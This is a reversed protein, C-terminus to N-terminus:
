GIIASCKVLIKKVFCKPLLSASYLNVINTVFVLKLTYEVILLIELHCEIPLEWNYKIILNCCYYNTPINKLVTHQMINHPDDDPLCTIYEIFLNAPHQTYRVFYQWLNAFSRDGVSSQSAMSIKILINKFQMINKFINIKWWSKM